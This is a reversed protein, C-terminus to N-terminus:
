ASGSAREIGGSYVFDVRLEGLSLACSRGILEALTCGSNQDRRVNGSTTHIERVDRM